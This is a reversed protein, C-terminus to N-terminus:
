QELVRRGKLALQLALRLEPNELDHGLLDRIHHLRYLLSNRHLHLRRAAESLNGNCAFYVEVTELLHDERRPTNRLPALEREVFSQLEGSKRLALLLHYVGLDSTRAIHGPGVVLLGLRATDQAEAASRSVELPSRTVEGMGAWWTPEEAVGGNGLIRRLAVEGQESIGTRDAVGDGPAAVLAVIEGPRVRTWAHLATGLAEAARTTIPAVPAGGNGIASAAGGEAAAVTVWIVVHPLRLDHGLQSARSLMSAEGAYTGTLLADLAEDRLSARWGAVAALADAPSRPSGRQAVVHTIVEREIAPLSVGAPLAILPVGMREAHQQAEERERADDPGLPPTDDLGAVAIASAGMRIVEDVVGPLTSTVLQAQLSHLTALALLALEGGQFGEFAPTRARMVSAWTVTRELGGEGAVLQARWRRLLALTERVTVPGNGNM